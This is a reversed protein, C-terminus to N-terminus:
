IRHLIYPQKVDCQDYREDADDRKSTTGANSPSKGHIENEQSYKYTIGCVCASQFIGTRGRLNESNFVRSIYVPLACSANAPGIPESRCTLWIKNCAEKNDGSPKRLIRAPRPLLDNCCWYPTSPRQSKRQLHLVRKENTRDNM